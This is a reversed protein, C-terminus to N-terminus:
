YATVYLVVYKVVYDGVYFVNGKTIVVTRVILIIVNHNCFGFKIHARWKILTAGVYKGYECILERRNTKFYGELTKRKRSTEMLPTGYNCVHAHGKVTGNWGSDCVIM